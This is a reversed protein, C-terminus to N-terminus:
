RQTELALSCAAPVPKGLVAEKDALVPADRASREVTHSRSLDSARCEVPLECV